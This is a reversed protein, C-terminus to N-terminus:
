LEHGPHLRPLGTLGLPSLGNGPPAPYAMDEDEHKDVM